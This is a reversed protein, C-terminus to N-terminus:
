IPDSGLGYVDGQRCGRSVMTNVLNNTFIYNKVAWRPALILEPPSQSVFRDVYLNPRMHRLLEIAVELYEEASMLSFSEPDRLYDRGMTTNKLIQLQHLKISTIPLASLEAVHHRFDARSEGPLGIILHAGCDVGMEATARITAAAEGFTHGRNVRRLTRDLTSEVGYEIYVRTREGLRGFYHLWDEDVCDPRTGVVLGVVGPQALAEEYMARLRGRDGYTNTYSQFYALYRMQPYKHSFFDIGDRLQEVIPRIRSTYGPSFSHNNCYTCGGQGLSGDRNPCTSGANLSIKQVKYAFHAKYYESFDLYPKTM